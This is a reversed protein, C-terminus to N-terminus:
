GSKFKRPIQEFIRDVAKRSLAHGEYRSFDEKDILFDHDTDLEWFRCYLVYFHEYSFYQRIKNIDEEDSVQQFIEYLNSNNFDRFTIKGDDNYDLTYFIRMVVTDAYREQFEPTAKLFELGPHHELLYSFLVKFDDKEIYQSNKKAFITFVRKKPTTHDHDNERWFREIQARSITKSAADGQKDGDIRIYLYDRFIKPIKFVDTCLKDFKEKSLGDPSDKCCADM